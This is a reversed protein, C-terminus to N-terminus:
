GDAGLLAPAVNTEARAAAPQGDRDCACSLRRLVVGLLTLLSLPPAVVLLDLGLFVVRVYGHVSISV